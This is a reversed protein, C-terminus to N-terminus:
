FNLLKWVPSTHAEPFEPLGTPQPQIIMFVLVAVFTIALTIYSFTGREGHRYVGFFRIGLSAGITAFLAALSFYRYWVYSGILAAIIAINIVLPYMRALPSVDKRKVAGLWDSADIGTVGMILATFYLIRDWSRQWRKRDAAARIFVVFGIIVVGAAIFYFREPILMVGATGLLGLVSAIVAMKALEKKAPRVARDTAKYMKAFIEALFVIVFFVIGFFPQVMALAFTIVIPIIFKAGKFFTFTSFQVPHTQSYTTFYTFANFMLLVALTQEPTAGMYLFICLMCMSLNMGTFRSFLAGVLGAGVFPLIITATGM